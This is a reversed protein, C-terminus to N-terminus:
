GKDEERLRCYKTMMKVFEERDISGNSDCDAEKFLEHKEDYSLESKARELGSIFEMVDVRGDQTDDFTEDFIKGCMEEIDDEKNEEASQRAWCWVIFEAMSM